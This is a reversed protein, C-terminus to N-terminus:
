LTPLPTERPRPGAMHTEQVCPHGLPFAAVSIEPYGSVSREKHVTYDREGKRGIKEKNKVWFLVGPNSLGKEADERGFGAGLNLETVM